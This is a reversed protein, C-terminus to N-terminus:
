LKLNHTLDPGAEQDTDEKHMKKRAKLMGQLSKKLALVSADPLLVETHLKM